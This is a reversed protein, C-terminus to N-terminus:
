VTPTESAFRFIIKKGSGPMLTFRHGKGFCVACPILNGSSKLDLCYGLDLAAGLVAPEKISSDARKSQAIAFEMARSPSNEWFYAGHGLWDWSNKSDKLRHNGFVVAEVVSKDRGHFDLILGPRSSYM